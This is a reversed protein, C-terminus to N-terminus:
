PPIIGPGAAAEEAVEELVWDVFARVAPHEALEDRCALWMTKHADAGGTRGARAAPEQALARLAGDRLWPAVLSRRVWAVGLGLLAAQVLLLADNFGPGEAPPLRAATAPGAASAAAGEDDCRQLRLPWPESLLRLREGAPWLAPEGGHRALWDPTAVAVVADSWLPWCRLGAREFQGFRLAVASHLPPLSQMAYGTHLTLQLQPQRALLCPLRPLLWTAALSPLTFLALPESRPSLVAAPDPAARGGPSPGLRHLQALPEALRQRLAEGAASLSLKPGSREFLPLGHWHEVAQVARSIASHSLHRETAARTFSGLRAAAEFAQLASLPPLTRTSASPASAPSPSSKTVTPKRAPM